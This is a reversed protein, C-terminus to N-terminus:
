GFGSRLKKDLDTWSTRFDFVVTLDGGIGLAVHVEPHHGLADEGGRNYAPDV